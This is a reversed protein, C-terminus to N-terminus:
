RLGFRAKSGSSGHEGSGQSLLDCSPEDSYSLSSLSGAVEQKRETNRMEKKEVRGM